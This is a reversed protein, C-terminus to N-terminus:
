HSEGTVQADLWPALDGALIRRLGSPTRLLLAGDADIDEATGEAAELGIVRVTRGLTVSRRRWLERVEDPHGHVLDYQYELIPLTATVLPGVEVGLSIAGPPLLDVAVNANIGIGIVLSTGATELLLGGAKGDGQMLDNPWKLGIPRGTMTEVASATGVAAGLGILPWREVPLRPRLVVSLYLGGPPSAWSRGRRGRGATQELALIATGEAAGQEAADRAADNTSPLRDHVYLPRGFRATRLGATIEAAIDPLLGM